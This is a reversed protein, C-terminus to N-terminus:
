YERLLSLCGPNLSCRSHALCAALSAECTHLRSNEGCVQLGNIIRVNYLLFSPSLPALLLPWPEVSSLPASSPQAGVQLGRVKQGEMRGEGHPPTPGM